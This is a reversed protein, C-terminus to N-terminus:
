GRVTRAVLSAVLMGTVLTLLMGIGLHKLYARRLDLGEATWESNRLLRVLSWVKREPATVYRADRWDPLKQVGYLGWGVFVAVPVYYLINQAVGIESAILDNM